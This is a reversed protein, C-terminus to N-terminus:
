ALRRLTFLSGQGIGASEDSKITISTIASPNAGMYQTIAERGEANPDSIRRGFSWRYLCYSPGVMIDIIIICSDGADVNVVAPVNDESSGHQLDRYFHRRTHYNSDTTDGNIYVTHLTQNSAEANEINATLRYHMGKLDGFTVTDTDSGVIHKETGEIGGFGNWVRQGDEYFVTDDGGYMKIAQLLGEPRAFYYTSQADLTIGGPDSSGTLYTQRLTVGIADGLSSGTPMYLTTTVGSELAILYRNGAELARCTWVATGDSTTGGPTTGWTPETSNTTGATTCEYWYGNGATPIRVEGLTVSTSGDWELVYLYNTTLESGSGGGSASIGITTADVSYVDVNTGAQLSVNGKKSNISDVVDLGDIQSQLNGTVNAVEARTIDSSQAAAALPDIIEVYIKDANRVNTTAPEYTLFSISNISSMDVSGEYTICWNRIYYSDNATNNGGVTIIMQLTDDDTSRIEGNFTCNYGNVIYGFYNSSGEVGDPSGGNSANLRQGHYDTQTTAGNVAVHLYCAGAAGGRAYGHFRIVDKNLGTVTGSSGNSVNITGLVNSGSAPIADIQTQLNASINAVETRTAYDGSVSITWTDAPSENVAIGDGGILVADSGGGGGSIADIQTQLNASINAVETAGIYDAHQSQTLHYYEDTTGGQLGSLDNHDQIPSTAVELNFDYGDQVVTISGGSSQITTSEPVIADIQSQLNGTVNAVETTTAYDGSVSVTWTQVPGQVASIGDGGIITTSEQVINNIQTQLNGTANETETRLDDINTQLTGTVNAVETRTAYDGSVSITWTDTPSEVVGIGDGGVLISTSGSGGSIADIQTQLNASINAVETAGIYDAHQSATLHYYENTTGGQLGSLDNHISTGGSIADIQTQLNGTVNAVETRTAYDGSVSITWTDSPAESVQIGDGGILTSTSGSGGGSASIGITTADVSYIDVNTGAQLSVNGDKSNLTNVYDAAEIDDLRSDLGASISAVETSSIYDTVAVQYVASTPTTVTIGTGATVSSIGSGDAGKPGQPGTIGAEYVKIKTEPVKIIKNNDTLVLKTTTDSVKIIKMPM